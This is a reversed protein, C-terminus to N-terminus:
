PFELDERVGAESGGTSTTITVGGVDGEDVLELSEEEECEDRDGDRRDEVEVALIPRM